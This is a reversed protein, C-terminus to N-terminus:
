NVHHTIECNVKGLVLMETEADKLLITPLIQNTVCSFCNALGACTILLMFISNERNKQSAGYSTPHLLPEFSEPTRITQSAKVSCNSIFFPVM